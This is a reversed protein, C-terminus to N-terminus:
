EFQKWDIESLSDCVQDAEKLMEKTYSNAIGVCSMGAKKAASIGQISDEIALCQSSTIAKSNIHNLKQLALTYSEPHPKSYKVDEATVLVTFYDQIRAYELINLVEKRIAGSVVACQYLPCYRKVFFYVDPFIKINKTFLEDYYHSKKDLMEEIQVQSAYINHDRLIMKFFDLSRMAMYKGFYEANTLFIDYKKLVSRFSELHLLEDDAIIGNCDFLLYKLHMM